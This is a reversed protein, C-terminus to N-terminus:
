SEKGQGCPLDQDLVQRVMKLLENPAVPKDILCSGSDLAVKDRVADPAYGSTFIVKVQPHTQRIQDCAQKGNRHPMILDFLLLQITESHHQFQRVADAGDVATIVRYGADTLVRVLMKRLLEEDEALLITENGGLPAADTVEPATDRVSDACLPLYIRFTTGQGPESYVNIFGDHQKVIGYVVALGLGTGQGVNKTTFFPEFIRQQTEKDIGMGSDSVILKAYSGPIGYAHCDIFDDRLEEKDLKITLNGGQPMADRANVALNMLVQQLQYIDARVSLPEGHPVMTLEIDAALTRQLFSKTEALLENLDVTRRESPQKRSFLLLERTLSAARGSAVIIQEINHRLRDDQAMKLLTHNAFGSIATLINNFDHAVGGALTGISELKQAHLYQMELKKHETVDRDIRIVRTTQGADNKLPFTRIDYSRKDAGTTTGSYPLGSEFTKRVLCDDCDPECQRLVSFCYKGVLSEAPSSAGGTAAHNAWVIRLNRNLLMLGDPIADLLGNFDQSLHRFKAESRRLSQEALRKETVDHIISFLLKQDTAPVPGSFLEVDRLSGDARRHTFHFHGNLRDRAKALEVKIEDASLTNIEDVRKRRLEQRTWGYWAAAAPNADVIRGNDSDVILMVAHHNEFLGRYREESRLLEAHEHVRELISPLQKLYGESKVLYDAAGLRLAQVAIEESGHSTVMVIPTKLRCQQRLVKVMELANRGPLRYDLLFVDCCFDPSETQRALTLLEEGSGIVELRIHPAHRALHRRTLDADFRNPEVYLVKLPRQRRGHDGQFRFHADYLVAPLVELNELTKVLYDDAGAKLATVASAQDGTGTLVVVSLPLDSGRIAALLDFGSGDPLTLDTLVLDLDLPDTKLRERALALTPVLELRIQPALRALHSRTLDADVANDEIYLVRLPHSQSTM